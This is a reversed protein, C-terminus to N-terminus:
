FANKFSLCKQKKLWEVTKIVFEIKYRTVCVSFKIKQTNLETRGVFTYGRIELKWPSTAPHGRQWTARLVAMPLFDGM